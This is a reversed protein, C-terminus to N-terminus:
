LIAIIMSAIAIIVITMWFTFGQREASFSKTKIELDQIRKEMDMQEKIGKSCGRLAYEVGLNNLRYKGYPDTRGYM